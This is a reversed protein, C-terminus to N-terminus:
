ALVHKAISRSVPSYAAFFWHKCSFHCATDSILCATLTPGDFVRAVSGNVPRRTCEQHVVAELHTNRLQPPKPFRLRAEVFLRSEQCSVKVRHGLNRFRNGVLYQKRRMLLRM